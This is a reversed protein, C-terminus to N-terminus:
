QKDQASRVYKCLALMIEHCLKPAHELLHSFAGLEVVLLKSKTEATVTAVRTRKDILAIEGFFDNAYLRNIVKGDREVKVMGELILVFEFGLDGQKVLVKGAPVELEDAIRAVENLHKNSLDSFLPVKRLLDRKDRQTDTKM